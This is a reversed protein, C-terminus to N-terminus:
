MYYVIYEINKEDQYITIFYIDVHGENKNIALYLEVLKKRGLRVVKITLDIWLFGVHSM